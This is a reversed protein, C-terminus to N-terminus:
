SLVALLLSRVVLIRVERACSVSQLLMTSPDDFPIRAFNLVLGCVNLRIYKFAATVKMYEQEIKKSQVQIICTFIFVNPM